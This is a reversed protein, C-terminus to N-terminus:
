RPAPAALAPEPLTDFHVIRYLFPDRGDQKVGKGYVQIAFPHKGGYFKVYGNESFVAQIAPYVDLTEQFSMDVSSPGPPGSFRHSHFVAHLAQGHEHLAVAVSTFHQMDFSARAGSQTALRVAILHELTRVGDWKLGTVALMWEPEGAGGPLRQVLFAHAQALAASSICYSTRAPAPAPLVPKSEALPAPAPLKLIADLSPLLAQAAAASGLFRKLEECLQQATEADGARLARHLMRTRRAAGDAVARDVAEFERQARRMWRPLSRTDRPLLDFM